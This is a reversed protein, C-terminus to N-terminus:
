EASETNEADETNYTESSEGYLKEFFKMTENYLTQREDDSLESLEPSAQTGESLGFIEKMSKDVMNLETSMYIETGDAQYSDTGDTLVKLYAKEVERSLTAGNEADLTVSASATEDEMATILADTDGEYEGKCFNEAQNFLAMQDETLSSTDLEETTEGDYSETDDSGDNSVEEANQDSSDADLTGDDTTEEGDLTGMTSDDTTEDWNDTEDIEGVEEMDDTNDTSDEETNDTTANDEVLGTEQELTPNETSSQVVDGGLVSNDVNNLIDDGDASDGAEVTNDEEAAIEGIEDSSGSTNQNVQELTAKVDDYNYDQQAIQQLLSVIKDIQDSDLNVNSQQAVNVVINYIDDANQVNDRIVQMKSNNMVTTADNKGVEDALNGTVVMEETALEKKASDLEEGTATEYAMQIGTLAGTGSVEFPCAAVVECNKVGSTSLSTAIMNCTVWNLNATRVKIGGSQTPKVYACSVTRTGIQEIPVYASLHDREDQNTITLIQVQSSDVNFYKMMTNKQADTLDAGLTVVKMSDAMTPLSTGAVALCASCLLAGLAKAKKM